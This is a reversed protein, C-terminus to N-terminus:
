SFQSFFEWTEGPAWTRLGSDTTAGDQPSAIHGGDFAIWTVPYGSNCTYTTKTHTLSGSSPEPASQAQCGNNLVFKDRLSHGISISLIGDDVGHIGLYPVPDNGGECGSLQAGSLVAVARLKDARSCALSYTMAGGFSFGTAFRQSQDVCLDAEVHEMIADIFKVDDGNSNGWGNDIGQPAVFIASDEALRKLGYYNWVGAEVTQGTAVDEMTGGRWHLGFILKYGKSSNYSKPVDLIYSRTRGNVTVSYTGSTLSSQKGCGDSSGSGPSSVATSVADTPSVYAFLPTASTPEFNHEVPGTTSVAPSLTTDTEEVLDCSDETTETVIEESEDCAEDKTSEAAEVAVTTSLATVPTARNWFKGGHHPFGPILTGSAISSAISVPKATALSTLFLLVAGTVFTPHVM